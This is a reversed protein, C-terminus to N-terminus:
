RRCSQALQRAAIPDEPVDIPPRITPPVGGLEGGLHLYLGSDDDLGPKDILRGDSAVLPHTILGRVM